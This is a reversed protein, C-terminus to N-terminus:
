RHGIGSSECITAGAVVWEERDFTVFDFSAVVKGDRRVAVGAEDEEPYGTHVVEDDPRLGTTGHRAEDSPVPGVELPLEAFDAIMSSAVGDCDLEGSVFTGEPDLIEIPTTPPDGGDGHRSFPWCAEEVV